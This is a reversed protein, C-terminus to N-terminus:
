LITATLDIYRQKPGIYLAPWGIPVGSAPNAVLQDHIGRATSRVNFGKAALDACVLAALALAGIRLPGRPLGRFDDTTRAVRDLRRCAEDSESVVTSFLAATIEWVPIPRDTDVVADLVPLAERMFDHDGRQYAAWLRQGHITETVAVGGFKTGLAEAVASAAAFDDYREDHIAWMGDLAAGFYRHYESSTREAIEHYDTSLGRAEAVRDLLLLDIIAALLGQSRYYDSGKALSMIWRSRELQVEPLDVDILAKRAHSLVEAATLTDELEGALELAQRAYPTTREPDVSGDQYLGGALCAVLRARLLRQSEPLADLVRTLRQELKGEYRSPDWTIRAMMLCVEAEAEIDGLGHAEDAAASFDREAEDWRGHLRHTEADRMLQTVRGPMRTRARGTGGLLRVVEAYMGTAAADDDISALERWREAVVAAAHTGDRELVARTAASWCAASDRLEGAWRLLRVSDLGQRTDALWCWAALERCRHREAMLDDILEKVRTQSAQDDILLLGDFVPGRWLNDAALLLPLADRDDGRAHAAAGATVRELFDDVDATVVDRDLAIFGSTPARGRHVPKAAGLATRLRSLQPDLSSPAVGVIRCIDAKAVPERAAALLGLIARQSPQIRETVDEGDVTVRFTGLM